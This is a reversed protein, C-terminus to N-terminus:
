NELFEPFANLFDTIRSLFSTGDPKQYTLFVEPNEQPPACFIRGGNSVPLGGAGALALRDIFRERASDVQATQEAQAKHEADRRAEWAWDRGPNQLLCKKFYLFADRGKLGKSRLHPGVARHVDQLLCNQDRCISTLKGLQGNTVALEARIAELEDRQGGREQPEPTPNDVPEAALGTRIPENGKDSEKTVYDRAKRPAQKREEQFCTEPNGPIKPPVEGCLFSLYKQPDVRYHLKAPIGRLKEQLLGLGRLNRRIAVQADPGLQLMHQWSGLKHFLSEDDSAGVPGGVQPLYFWGDTSRCLASLYAAQQIFAAVRLDGCASVLATPISLRPGDLKEIIDWADM